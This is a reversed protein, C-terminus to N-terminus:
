LRKVIEAATRLALAAITLTPNSTSSTVFVSSGAVYLNSHEHSRGFANVVSKAPAEGMKLTGMAHAATNFDQPAALVGPKIDKKDSISELITPTLKDTSKSL